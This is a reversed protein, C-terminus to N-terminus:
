ELSNKAHKRVNEVFDKLHEPKVKIINLISYM